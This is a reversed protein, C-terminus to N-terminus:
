VEFKVAKVVSSVPHPSTGNPRFIYAGSARWESKSNNGIMGNYYLFNQQINYTKNSNLDTVSKLLGTKGEVAVSLFQFVQMFEYRVNHIIYICIFTM